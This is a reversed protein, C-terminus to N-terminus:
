AVVLWDEALVDSVSPAWTSVTDDVTKLALYARYPVLAGEGFHAKAAGTQALYSAAPVLYAFQGKGNWGARAVRGGSKLIGLAAGFTLLDSDLPLGLSDAIGRLMEGRVDSQAPSLEPLPATGTVVTGDSYAKTETKPQLGLLADIATRVAKAIEVAGDPFSVVQSAIAHMAVGELEIRHAHPSPASTATGVVQAKAQGKQFPMWMCFAADTALTDDHLLTVSTRSHPTGNADFVSLNVLYDSWVHAVLAAYPGGGDAHRAFGGEATNSSPYFWVVRGVTPHILVQSM